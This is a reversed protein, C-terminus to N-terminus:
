RYLDEIAAFLAFFLRPVIQDFQRAAAGPRELGHASKNRVLVAIALDAERDTLAGSFGTVAVGALLEGVVTDFGGPTWALTNL